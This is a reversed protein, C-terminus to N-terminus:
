AHYMCQSFKILCNGVYQVKSKFDDKGFFGKYSTDYFDSFNKAYTYLILNFIKKSRAFDYSAEGPCVVTIVYLCM